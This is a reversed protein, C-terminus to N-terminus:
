DISLGYKDQLRQAYRVLPRDISELDLMDQMQKRMKECFGVMAPADNFDKVHDRIYVPPAFVFKYCCKLPENMPIYIIDGEPRLDVRPRSEHPGLFAMPIIPVNALWAMRAFGWFFPLLRYPPKTYQGEPYIVVTEGMELLKRGNELNIPVYGLREIVDHCLAYTAPHEFYSSDVLIRAPNGLIEYLVQATLLCDDSIIATDILLPPGGSHPSIILSPGNQPIHEAGEIEFDHYTRIFKNFEPHVSDINIRDKLRRLHSKSLNIYEPRKEYVSQGLRKKNEALRRKLRHENLRAPKSRLIEIPLPARDGDLEDKSPVSPNQPETITLIFDDHSTGHSGLWIEMGGRPNPVYQWGNGSRVAIEPGLSNTTGVVLGHPTSLLKRVGFNCPNNFGSLTVPYWRDGDFTKWLDFGGSDAILQEVGGDVLQLLKYLFPHLRTLDSYRLWIMWNLTAAYLWGDHSCMQWIYGNCITDFGAWRGSKPLKLGNPTFRPNGVVVDWTDDPYVRIIESAAPGVKNERDYGGDQIGASIYLSDKFSCMWIVSQSLKFRFGGQRIVPTWRYPPLGDAHTKWLEYGTVINMAGAYLHDNFSTAYFVVLNNPNGFGPESVPYWRGSAPDTSEFVVPYVTANSTSSTFKSETQSSKRHRGIPSTYLKGRFIELFRFSLIEDSYGLGPQSCPEFIIGDTSRLIIAAKGSRNSSVTSIYLAPEPDSEGQFVTMGRYGIERPIPDGMRGTVIPSRYVNGWVGTIPEYCWIQARMDVKFPDTHPCPIPDILFRPKGLQRCLLFILQGRGTGLYLRGKFWATSYAYGNLADGLGAQALPKFDSESLGGRCSTDGELLTTM